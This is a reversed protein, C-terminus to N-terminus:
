APGPAEWHVRCQAREAPRADSIEDVTTAGMRPPKGFGQGLLWPDLHEVIDDEILHEHAEEIWRPVVVGAGAGDHLRHLLFSGAPQSARGPLPFRGYPDRHGVPGSGCLIDIPGHRRDQVGGVLLGVPLTDAHLHARGARNNQFTCCSQLNSKM